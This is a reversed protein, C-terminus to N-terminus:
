SAPRRLLEGVWASTVREHVLRALLSLEEARFPAAKEPMMTEQDWGLTECVAALVAAERLESLLEDYVREM